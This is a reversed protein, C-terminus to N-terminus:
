SISVLWDWMRYGIDLIRNDEKNQLHLYILTQFIGIVHAWEAYSHKGGTRHSINPIHGINRTRYVRKQDLPIYLCDLLHYPIEGIRRLENYIRLLVNSLICNLNM